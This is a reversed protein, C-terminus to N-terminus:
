LLTAIATLVVIFYEQNINM